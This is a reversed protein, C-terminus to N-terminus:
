ARCTPPKDVNAAYVIIVHRHRPQSRTGPTATGPTRPPWRLGPPWCRRAPRSTGAQTTWVAFMPCRGRSIVAAPTGFQFRPGFAGFCALMLM